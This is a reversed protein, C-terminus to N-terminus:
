VAVVDVEATLHRRHDVIRTPGVLRVTQASVLDGSSRGASLVLEGAEVVRDGSAATYVALDAHVAFEVDASAGAALPVRAYAILKQVPRAVSAVPDHLYLQVVEVGARSGSNAVRLRARVIGDTDIEDRDVRLDSWTFSTYSLGHGFPFAPTPDISSVDSRQALRAALYTSPQTGPTAPVSVPLRGSPNVRGSLVGAIAGAGEEGAFFAEVIGAAEDSARGLAYPRGALMVAVAPTGADLVADILQQQAGPLALTEIDCGEGSTGRGFLGARDGLALIVVDAAAAIRVAEEIGSTEGGDVTTGASHAIRADPFEARVAELLTPIRIGMEVGPHQTVVHTPFSYCGLMAYPDDANPGIVAISAPRDLPLTGDNRLLVVAAEALEAALARNGPPDLDITGRLAEPDALDAGALAPPVPSWDPDLLGLEAKQRLVRRLATDILDLPLIGEEVARRLPEGFTKVTPLEVDIGARLAAGAAEAWTGAVGHLLKLFAVSFYDAVVTGEFGWQERLLGTLLARDAAVPVGDVDSYSNMVSRVGAERVAMEFPPLLVDQLERRGVSVPALNRGGKSASYGVFHKLTAVVGASEVGRVYATAITAVLHPDEGITEEVRGWRADRVVDLVPALGQHVGVSRMDDGIRRAMREVLGPDFTAGWSLPVPYATAGWAAFGALCEEHALAPIGWRSTARIREQTRMLSVAGLAADVPRTGFPRTLQGLGLPLLQDLDVVEEVDHQHPAVDGGEDSAGVWVGYLQALKEELTLVSVLREVPDDGDSLAPDASWQATSVKM